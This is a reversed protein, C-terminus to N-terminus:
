EHQRGSSSAVSVIDACFERAVRQAQQQPLTQLQSQLNQVLEDVVVQEPATLDKKGLLDTRQQLQKLGLVAASSATEIAQHRWQNDPNTIMDRVNTLQEQLLPHPAESPEYVWYGLLVLGGILLVRKVSTPLKM